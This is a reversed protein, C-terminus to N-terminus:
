AQTCQWHPVRSRQISCVTQVTVTHQRYFSEFDSPTDCMEANLQVVVCEISGSCAV